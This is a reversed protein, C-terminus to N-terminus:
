GLVLRSAPVFRRVLWVGALSGIFALAATVFTGPGTIRNFVGLAAIHVLYVGLMCSSVQEVNFRVRPLVIAAIAAAGGVAYPVSVGHKQWYFCIGLAVVSLALGARTRLAVGLLAAPLAHLFQSFPPALSLRLDFWWPTAALMATALLACALSLRDARVSSVALNTLFIFPLFWLHAGYLISSLPSLGEIFPNGDGAFRWGLYFISWFVWPVLLRRALKAAGADAFYTALVTFAILGGYGLSGGPAHSHFLVIGFAAAIRVLEINQNRSM